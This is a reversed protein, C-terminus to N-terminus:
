VLFFGFCKCICFYNSFYFLTLLKARSNKLNENKFNENKFNENKKLKELFTSNKWKKVKILM